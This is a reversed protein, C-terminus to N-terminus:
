DNQHSSLRIELTMASWSRYPVKPSGDEWPKRKCPYADVYQQPRWNEGLLSVNSYPVNRPGTGGPRLIEHSVLLAMGWTERDSGKSVEVVALGPSTDIKFRTQRRVWPRLSSMSHYAFAIEVTIFSFGSIVLLASVQLLTSLQQYGSYAYLWTLLTVLCPNHSLM